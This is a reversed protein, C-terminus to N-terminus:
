GEDEAVISAETSLGLRDAARRLLLGDGLPDAAALLLLQRSERPLQTVRRVFAEEMRGALPGTGPVVFGGAMEDATLTRPMELLALPNGGTEAVIRDRVQVDLRGLTASELLQRAHADDLGAV